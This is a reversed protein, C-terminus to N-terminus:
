AKRGLIGLLEAQAGAGDAVEVKDGFRGSSRLMPEMPRAVELCFEVLEPSLQEDAGIARALDWGHVVHDILVQTLYESASIQGWSVHVMQELATLSEVAALEEDRAANWSAVPDEGLLDGDLSDGVEELTKGALLPDVWRAENVIHNVLAHVDWESCPTPDHWQDAKVQQMRDDFEGVASAFLDRPTVELPAM